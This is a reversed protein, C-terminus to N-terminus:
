DPPYNKCHWDLWEQCLTRAVDIDKETSALRVLVETMNWAKGCFRGRVAGESAFCTLRARVISAPM